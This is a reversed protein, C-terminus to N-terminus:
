CPESAAQAAVYAASAQRVIERRLKGCHVDIRRRDRRATDAHPEVFCFRGDDLSRLHCGRLNIMGFLQLDFYAVTGFAHRGAPVLVVRWIRVQHALSGGNM